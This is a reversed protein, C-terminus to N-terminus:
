NNQNYKWKKNHKQKLIKQKHKKIARRTKMRRFM